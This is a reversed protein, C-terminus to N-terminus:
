VIASPSVFSRAAWVDDGQGVALRATGRGPELVALEGVCVVDQEVARVGDESVVPDVVDVVVGDEDAVRRRVQADGAVYELLAQRNEAQRRLGRGPRDM